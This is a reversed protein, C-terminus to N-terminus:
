DSHWGLGGEIWFLSSGKDLFSETKLGDGSTEDTLFIRGFSAAGM